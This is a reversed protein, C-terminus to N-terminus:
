KKGTLYAWCTLVVRLFVFQVAFSVLASVAVMRGLVGYMGKQFAIMLILGILLLTGYLIGLPKINARCAEGYAALAGRGRKIQAGMVGYLLILGFLFACLCLVLCTMSLSSMFWNAGVAILAAILFFVVVWVIVGWVGALAGARGVYLLCGCIVVLLAACAIILTNVTGGASAPAAASGELVAPGSLAGSRMCAVTIVATGSDTTTLTMIGKNLASLAGYAAPQGDLRLYLYAGSNQTRLENYAKEGESNFQVQIQVNSGNVSYYAQKVHRSDLVPDGMGGQNTFLVFDYSGQPTLVSALSSNYTTDPVTVTIKGNEAKAAASGSTMEARARLVKADSQAAAADQLSLTYAYGGGLNADPRLAERWNQQFTNPIFAVQRTLPTRVDGTETHIDAYETTRGFLGLIVGAVTAALLAALVACGVIKKVSVNKM